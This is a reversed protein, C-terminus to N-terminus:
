EEKKEREEVNVGELEEKEEEKEEMNDGEMSDVMADLKRQMELQMQALSSMESQISHLAPDEEKRKESEDLVEAAMKPGSNQILDETPMRSKKGM